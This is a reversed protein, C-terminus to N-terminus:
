SGFKDWAALSGTDDTNGRHPGTEVEGKSQFDEWGGRHVLPSQSDGVADNRTSTSVGFGADSRKDSNIDSMTKGREKSHTKDFSIARVLDRPAGYRRAGEEKRVITLHPEGYRLVAHTIRFGADEIVQKHEQKIVIQTV